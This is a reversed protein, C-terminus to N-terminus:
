CFLLYTSLYTTRAFHLIQLLIDGFGTEPQQTKKCVTTSTHQRSLYHLIIAANQFSGSQSHINMCGGKSSIIMPVSIIMSIKSRQMRYADNARRYNFKNRFASSCQRSSATCKIEARAERKNM